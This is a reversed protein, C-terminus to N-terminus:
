NSYRLSNYQINHNKPTKGTETRLFSQFPNEIMTKSINKRLLREVRRDEIIGNNYYYLLVTTDRRTATAMALVSRGFDRLAKTIPHVKKEDMTRPTCAHVSVSM